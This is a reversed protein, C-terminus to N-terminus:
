RPNKLSILFVKSKWLATLLQTSLLDGYIAKEHLNLWDEVSFEPTCHKHVQQYIEKVVWKENVFIDIMETRLKEGETM